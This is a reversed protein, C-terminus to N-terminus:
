AASPEEQELSMQVPGKPNPWSVDIIQDVNAISLKTAFPKARKMIERYTIDQGVKQILYEISDKSM